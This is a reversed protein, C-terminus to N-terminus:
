VHLLFVERDTLHSGKDNYCKATDQNQKTKKLVYAPLNCKMKSKPVGLQFIGWLM